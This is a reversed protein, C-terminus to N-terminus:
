RRMWRVPSRGRIRCCWWSVVLPPKGPGSPGRSPLGICVDLVVLLPEDVSAAGLWSAMAEFLRFRELEDASAAGLLSAVAEVLFYRDTQPDRRLPSPLRAVVEALEPVL